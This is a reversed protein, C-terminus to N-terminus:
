ASGGDLMEDPNWESQSVVNLKGEMTHHLRGCYENCIVGYETPEDFEATFTSIQGPIVMTNVNTGVVEYGHVVDQATIYFKVTSNAPVTVTGPIFAPHLAIMNVEYDIGSENSAYVGTNGFREHEGLSDPDVTGGEDDIMKVGAGVAGYAITAIFGVILVLAAAFWVKEYSHIEM